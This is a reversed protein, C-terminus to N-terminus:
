TFWTHRLILALLFAMAILVVSWLFTRMRRRKKLRKKLRLRIKEFVSDDSQDANRFFESNEWLLKIDEFEQRNEDSQNIWEKLEKIEPDDARGSLVKYTLSVIDM